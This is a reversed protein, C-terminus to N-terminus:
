GKDRRCYKQRRKGAAPPYKVGLCIELELARLLLIEVAIVMNEPVFKKITGSRTDRSMSKRWFDLIATAM